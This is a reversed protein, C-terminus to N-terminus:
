KAPNILYIGDWHWIQKDDVSVNVVAQFGELKDTGSTFACVGTPPTAVDFTICRGVVTGSPTTITALSDGFNPAGNTPQHYFIRTGKPIAELSSETITCFSPTKGSYESCEKSIKLPQTDAAGSVVTTMPLITSALLILLRSM